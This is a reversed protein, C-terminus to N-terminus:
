VHVGSHWYYKVFPLIHAHKPGANDTLDQIDSFESGSIDNDTVRLVKTNQETFKEFSYKLSILM